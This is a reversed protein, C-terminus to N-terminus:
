YGGTKSNGFSFHYGAEFNFQGHSQVTLCYQRKAFRVFKRAYAPLTQSFQEFLTAHRSVVTSVFKLFVARIRTTLLVEGNDFRAIM